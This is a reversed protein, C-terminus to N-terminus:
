QKNKAYMFLYQQAYGGYEGFKEYAYQEIIRKDTDEHFYLEEMIRKIWVDVPFANRFGLGFLLVCNAVKDGVGKIATLREKAENFSLHRLEEECISGDSIKDIADRLYAARFGTKMDQFDQESIMNLQKLDPFAYYDCEGEADICRGHNRSITRVIKKIGPINKNQSIIFSMLTEVFEQNLIRIGYYQEIIPKLDPDAEIITNKITEYDRDLDFYYRWINNVEDEAANKFTLVEKDQEIILRRGHAIVSYEYHCSSIDDSESASIQEFNFCQGCELTQRLNFDKETIKVM